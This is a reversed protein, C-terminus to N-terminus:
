DKRRSSQARTKGATSLARGRDRKFERIFEPRRFRLASWDEDLAVQRVAEYGAKGMATWGNDRHFECQYKKSTKKPYALWIVPDDKLAAVQGAAQSVEALTTVFYIRFPTTGARRLDRIIQRGELADLEVEFSEPAHAILLKLHHGLNLKKFLPTM